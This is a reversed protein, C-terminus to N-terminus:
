LLAAVPLADQKVVICKCSNITDVVKQPNFTVIFKMDGVRLSSSNLRKKKHIGTFM